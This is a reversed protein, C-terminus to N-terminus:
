YSFEGQEGVGRARKGEDVSIILHWELTERAGLVSNMGWLKACDIRDMAGTAPEPAINYQGMYGGENLWMGLYPVQEVPFAMGINLKRVPDFLLCWGESLREHFFYKQYGWNNKKPVIGLNFEKEDALHARPFDYVSGYLGLRSGSVSNVIRNMGSPVIFEMGETTNFLPHAAWIFDLEFSSLNQARYKM